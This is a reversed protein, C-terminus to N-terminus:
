TKSEQRLDVTSRVTRDSIEAVPGEEHDAEHFELTSLHLVASLAKWVQVLSDAVAFPLSSILPCPRMSRFM